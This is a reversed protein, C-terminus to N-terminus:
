PQAPKAASRISFRIPVIADLPVAVGRRLAPQFRWTRVTALAAEDLSPVGSSTAVSIASVAGGATISVRLRVTGQRGASYADQPYPPPANAALQRPLDDFETGNFAESGVSDIAARDALSALDNEKKIVAKRRLPAEVLDEDPLDHKPAAPPPSVAIDLVETSAEAALIEHERRAIEVPSPQLEPPSRTERDRSETLLAERLRELEDEPEAKPATASSSILKVSARGQNTPLAMPLRDGVGCFWSLAGVHALGSCLYAIALRM